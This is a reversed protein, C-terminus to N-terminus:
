LQEIPPQQSHSVVLFNKTESFYIQVVFGQITLSLTRLYFITNAETNTGSTSTSFLLSVVKPIRSLFLYMDFM